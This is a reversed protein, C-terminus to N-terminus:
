AICIASNLALKEEHLLKIIYLEFTVSRLLSLDVIKKNWEYTYSYYFRSQTWFLNGQM